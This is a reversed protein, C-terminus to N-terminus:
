KSNPLTNSDAAKTGAAEKTQHANPKPVMTRIVDKNEEYRTHAKEPSELIWFWRTANEAPRNIVNTGNAKSQDPDPLQWTLLDDPDSWAVIRPPDQHAQARVRSWHELHTILGGNKATDLDALELLRVQNAMFYAHSTQGLVTEFRNKRNSATEHQPNDELDLASFILYSGLSHSVVIYEQNEAPTVSALVIQRIGEILYEQMPGVALLADAFGWDLIDRKLSRNLVAPNPWPRQRQQIDSKTIWAYSRFRNTTSDEVTKAACTEFHKKDLDVLAAEKALIQRCKTSLVLPWWNIEHVYITTGSNSVLKYHDAFPTAARWDNSDRRWVAEGFYSLPPPAADPAFDGESAYSRGEFENTSCRIARCLSKRFPESVGFNQTGVNRKSTSIGMGHVYFIHLETQGNGARKLSDALSAPAQAQPDAAVQGWSVNAGCVLFAALFSVFPILRMQEFGQRTATSVQTGTINM